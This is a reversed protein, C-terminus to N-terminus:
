RTEEQHQRKNERSLNDEKQRKVRRTKEPWGHKFGELERIRLEAIDEGHVAHHRHNRVKRATRQGVPKGRPGQQSNGHDRGGRAAEIHRSIGARDPHCNKEPVPAYRCYQQEPRRQNTGCALPAPVILM